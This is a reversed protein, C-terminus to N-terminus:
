PNPIPTGGTNPTNPPNPQVTPSVDRKLAVRVHVRRLPKDDLSRVTVGEPVILAVDSELDEMRDRISISQTLLTSIHNIQTPKGTVRVQIPSVQIDYLRFGAQPTDKVDPSVSVVKSYPEVVLPITVHVTAPTLTLGEVPKNNSDVASVNFDGEISAGAEGGVANVVVREVREVRDLRGTVKVKPPSVEAANYRFGEPAERLYHLSVNAQMTRQPYVMVPLKSPEPPDLTIELRHEAASGIFDYRCKLKQSSVKDVPTGTFDAVIRVEGDKILDMISRPGSVNVKIKQPDVQVEVEDSKHEILVPTIFPRTVNPNREAQVYFYLLVATTLSIFKLGFNRRIREVLALKHRELAKKSELTLSM